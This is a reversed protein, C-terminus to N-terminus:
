CSRDEGSRAYGPSTMGHRDHLSCGNRTPMSSRRLRKEPEAMNPVALDPLHGSRVYTVLWRPRPLVVPAFRAVTRLDVRQPAATSGWDKGSPFAWDTTIILGVAGATRAQEMRRAMDQRTGCWVVQFITKANAAVVEDLPKRAFNSLTMAIGRTAAARAIAVEGEPHVAHVGTPATLVPFSITQGMVETELDHNGSVSAAAPSFRLESFAAVNDAATVGKEAGGLLAGYVTAPLRKKALRQAEAVSEFSRTRM